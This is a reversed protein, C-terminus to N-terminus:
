ILCHMKLSKFHHGGKALDTRRFPFKIELIFHQQPMQTFQRTSSPVPHIHSSILQTDLLFSTSVM